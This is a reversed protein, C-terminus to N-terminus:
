RATVVLATINDLSGVDYALRVLARAAGRRTLEGAIDSPELVDSLGDSCLLFRDGPLVDLVRLDPRAPPGQGLSQTIVHSLSPAASLGRAEM